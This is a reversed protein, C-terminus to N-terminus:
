QQNIFEDDQYIELLFQRDDDSLDAYAMDIKELYNESRPEPMKAVLILAVCAAAAVGSVASWRMARMRKKARQEAHWKDFVRTELDEFLNRPETYPTKKGITDFDFQEKM